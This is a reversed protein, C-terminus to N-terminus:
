LAGQIHILDRHILVYWQTINEVIGLYIIKTSCDINDFKVM